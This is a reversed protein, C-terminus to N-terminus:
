LFFLAIGRSGEPVEHSTRPHIKGKGKDAREEIKCINIKTSVLLLFAIGNCAQVTGSLELFNLSGSKL